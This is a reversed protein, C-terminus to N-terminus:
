QCKSIADREKTRRQRQSWRKRESGGATCDFAYTFTWEPQHSFICLLTRRQENDNDVPGWAPMM